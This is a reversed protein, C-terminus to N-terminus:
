EEVKNENDPEHQNPEIKIPELYYIMPPVTDYTSAPEACNEDYPILKIRERIGEYGCNNYLMEVVNRNVTPINFKVVHRNGLEYQLDILDAKFKRNFATQCEFIHKDPNYTESFISNIRDPVINFLVSIAAAWRADVGLTHYLYNFVFEGLSILCGMSMVFEDYFKDEMEKLYNWADITKNVTTLTGSATPVVTTDVNPPWANIFERVSLLDMADCYGILGCITSIASPARYTDHTYEYPTTQRMFPRADSILRTITTPCIMEDNETIKIFQIVISEDDMQASVRISAPSLLSVMNDQIGSGYTYIGYDERYFMLYQIYRYYPSNCHLTFQVSKVHEDAFDKPINTRLAHYMLMLMAEGRKRYARNRVVDRGTIWLNMMASNKFHLDSIDGIIHVKRIPMKMTVSKPDLISMPSQSDYVLGTTGNEAVDLCIFIELQAATRHGISAVIHQNVEPSYTLKDSEVKFGSKVLIEEMEITINEKM